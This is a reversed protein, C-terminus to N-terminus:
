NQVSACLLTRFSHGREISGDQNCDKQESIGVMFKKLVIIVLAELLLNNKKLKLKDGHCRMAREPCTMVEEDRWKERSQREPVEVDTALLSSNM